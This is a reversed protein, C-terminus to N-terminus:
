FTVRLGLDGSMGYHQWNALLLTRQNVDIEKASTINTLFLYLQIGFWPLEQKLALDWRTLHASNVRNQMWFDPRKFIDDQYIMSLRASFGKYDYGLSLNLIHNPQNMLRTTYFTDVVTQTLNGEDDYANYLVSKPYRAESFIRTYNINLVLGSLPAPLYWLNTQWETEIGKVDVPFPNNIYTNFEVLQSSRQPLDPYGSLDSLWTRSFFILNNIRKFFGNVSFLGLENSKLSVNFDFNESRAPQLTYNNYSIYGTGVFYRPTIASHDPYNLTNTYACHVQLWDLPRYRAHVMPLFYGHSQTVTTDAGQIGGPVAMGRMATYTTTLNQYRIGPLIAIDEGINLTFMVYAAGKTEIGSYDNIVSGLRDWPNEPDLYRQFMPLIQRMPGTKLSYPLPYEGNLFSEPRYNEDLFSPMGIRDGAM